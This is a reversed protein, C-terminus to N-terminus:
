PIFHNKIIGQWKAALDPYGPSGPATLVALEEASILYVPKYGNQEISEIIGLLREVNCTRCHQRTLLCQDCARELHTKIENFDSDYFM